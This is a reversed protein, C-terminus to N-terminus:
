EEYRVGETDFLEDLYNIAKKVYVSNVFKNNGHPKPVTLIFNQHSCVNHSGRKNKITFGFIELLKILDEFRVNKINERLENLLKEQKRRTKLWEELSIIADQEPKM